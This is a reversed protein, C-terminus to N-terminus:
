AGGPQGAATAASAATAAFPLQVDEPTAVHAFTRVAGDLEECAEVARRLEPSPAAQAEEFAQLRRRVELQARRISAVREEVGGVARNLAEVEENLFDDRRTRLPPPLEGAALLRLNRKFRVMPGAVRHSFRVAGLVVVLLSGGAILWFREHLYIMVLSQEEFGQEGGPSGLGWLLPAFIGLGVAALVAAGYLVGHTVLSGQLKRDVIYRRRRLRPSGNM